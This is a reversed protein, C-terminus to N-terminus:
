LVVVGLEVYARGGRDVFCAKYLASYASSVKVVFGFFSVGETAHVGSAHVAATWDDCVVFVVAVTTPVGGFVEWSLVVFEVSAWGPWMGREIFVQITSGAADASARAVADRSAAGAVANRFM